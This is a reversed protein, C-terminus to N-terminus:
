EDHRCRKDKLDGGCPLNLCNAAPVPVGIAALNEVAVVLRHTNRADVPEAHLRRVISRMPQPRTGVLVHELLYFAQAKVDEGHRSPCPLGWKAIPPEQKLPAHM